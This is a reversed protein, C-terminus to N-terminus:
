SRDLNTRSRNTVTHLQGISVTSFDLYFCSAKNSQVRHLIVNCTVSQSVANIMQLCEVEQDYECIISLSKLNRFIDIRVPVHELCLSIVQDPSYNDSFSRIKCDLHVHLQQRQDYICSTILSTLNSFSQLIEKTNFYEFLNLILEGSLCEFTSCIDKNYFILHYLWFKMLYVFIKSQKSTTKFRKSPPDDISKEMDKIDFVTLSCFYSHHASHSAAYAMKYGDPSRYKCIYGIYNKTRTRIQFIFKEILQDFLTSHVTLPWLRKNPCTYNLFHSCFDLLCFRCFICTDFNQM